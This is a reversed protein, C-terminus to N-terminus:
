ITGVVFNSNIIPESTHKECDLHVRFLDLSLSGCSTRTGFYGCPRFLFSLLPHLIVMCWIMSQYAVRALGRSSYFHLGLKRTGDAMTLAHHRLWRLINLYRLIDYWLWFRQRIDERSRPVCVPEAAAREGIPYLLTDHILSRRGGTGSIHCSNYSILWRLARLIRQMRLRVASRRDM